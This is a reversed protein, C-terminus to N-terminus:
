AKVEKFAMVFRRWENRVKRAERRWFSFRYRPAFHAEARRIAEAQNTPHFDWRLRQASLVAGGTATRTISVRGAAFELYLHDSM